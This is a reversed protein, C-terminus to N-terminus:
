YMQEEITRPECDGDIHPNVIFINDDDEEYDFDEEYQFDNGCEAYYEIEDDENIYM